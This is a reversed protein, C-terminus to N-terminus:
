LLFEATLPDKSIDVGTLLNLIYSPHVMTFGHKGIAIYLKVNPSLGKLFNFDRKMNNPIAYPDLTAGLLTIPFNVITNKWKETFDIGGLKTMQLHTGASAQRWLKEGILYEITNITDYTDHINEPGPCKIKDTNEFWVCMQYDLYKQQITLYTVSPNQKLWNSFYVIENEIGTIKGITTQLIFLHEITDPYKLAYAQAVSGGFGYGALIFKGSKTHNEYVKRLDNAFMEFSWQYNNIDTDEFKPDAEMWATGHARLDYSILTPIQQGSEKLDQTHMFLQYWVEQNFPSNHLLIIIKGNNGLLKRVVTSNGASYGNEGDEFQMLSAVTAGVQDIDLVELKETKKYSGSILYLIILIALLFILIYNIM